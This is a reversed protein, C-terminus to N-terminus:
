FLEAIFCIRILNRAQMNTRQNPIATDAKMNLTNAIQHWVSINTQRYHIQQIVIQAELVPGFQQQKSFHSISIASSGYMTNWRRAIDDLFAFAIKKQANADTMCM